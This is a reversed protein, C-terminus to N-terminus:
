VLRAILQLFEDSDFHGKTIYHDAGAELGKQKDESRDKYSVIVLPIHRYKEESKLAKTLELGNMRPMDIDSIILDFPQLKVKNLGDIGDVALTVDYGANRLLKKQMERITLSDEVVLIQKSM